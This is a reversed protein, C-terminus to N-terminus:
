GRNPPCESQGAAQRGAATKRMGMPDSVGFGAEDHSSSPRGGHRGHIAVSRVAGTGGSAEPSAWPIREKGAAFRPEKTSM